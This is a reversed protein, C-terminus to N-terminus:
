SRWITSTDGVYLTRKGTLFFPSIKIQLFRSSSKSLAISQLKILNRLMLLQYSKTKILSFTARLRFSHKISIMLIISLPNIVHLQLHQLIDGRGRRILPRPAHLTVNYSTRTLREDDNTQSSSSTPRNPQPNTSQLDARCNAYTGFRAIFDNVESMPALSRKSPPYTTQIPPIPRNPDDRFLLKYKANHVVQRHPSSYIITQPEATCLDNRPLCTSFHLM